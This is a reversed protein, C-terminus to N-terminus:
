GSVMLTRETESKDNPLKHFNNAKLEGNRLKPTTRFPAHDIVDNRIIGSICPFNPVQLNVEFHFSDFYISKNIM